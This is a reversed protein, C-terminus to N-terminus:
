VDVKIHDHELVDCIIYRVPVAGNLQKLESIIANSMSRPHILELRVLQRSGMVQEAVDLKSHSRSFGYCPSLSFGSISKFTMLRDVLDEELAKEVYAVLVAMDSMM